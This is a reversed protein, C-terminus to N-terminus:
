MNCLADEINNSVSFYGFCVGGRLRVVHFRVYSYREKLLYYMSVIHSYLKATFNILRIM